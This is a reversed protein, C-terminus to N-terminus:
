TLASGPDGILLFEIAAVLPKGSVRKGSGPMGPRDLHRDHLWCKRWEDAYKPGFVVTPRTV